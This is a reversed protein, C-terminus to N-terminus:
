ETKEKRVEGERRGRFFFPVFAFGIRQMLWSILARYFCPEIGEVRWM